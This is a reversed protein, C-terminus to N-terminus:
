DTSNLPFRSPRMSFNSAGVPVFESEQTPRAASAAVKATFVEVRAPPLNMWVVSTARRRFRSFTAGSGHKLNYTYQVLHSGLAMIQAFQQTITTVQEAPLSRLPLSSVLHTVQGMEFGGAKQLTNVLDCADGEIIRVGKFRERLLNVMSPSREVAILREPPVCDRLLAATIAGTGAGVEVVFHKPARGVLRAVRRALGPSSPCAAGIPRPNSVLEQGFVALARLWPLEM